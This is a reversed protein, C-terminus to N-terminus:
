SAAPHAARIVAIRAPSVPWIPDPTDGLAMEQIDHYGRLAEKMRLLLWNDGPGDARVAGTWVGEILNDLASSLLVPETGRARASEIDIVACPAGVPHEPLQRSSM